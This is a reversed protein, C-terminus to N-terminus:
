ARAAGAQHWRDRVTTRAAGARRAAASISVERGNARADRLIDLATDV